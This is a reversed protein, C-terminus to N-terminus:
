GRGAQSGVLQTGDEHVILCVVARDDADEWSEQSPVLPKILLPAADAYASGTYPEFDAVCREDAFAQLADPGPFAADQEVAPFQPLAFVEADHPESCDVTEVSTVSEGAPVNLCDGIVADFVAGGCAAAAM